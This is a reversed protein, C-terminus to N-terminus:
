CGHKRGIRCTRAGGTGALSNPHLVSEKHIDDMEFAHGATCNVLVAQSVSTRASCGWLSASSNGGEAVIMERVMRTWPLASGHLCVGLGDLVHLKIREVVTSPIDEFKLGAAFQALIATSGIPDAITNSSM